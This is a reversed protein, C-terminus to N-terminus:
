KTYDDRVVSGFGCTLVGGFLLLITLVPGFMVGTRLFEVSEDGKQTVIAAMFIGFGSFAAVGGATALMDCLLLKFLRAHKKSKLKGKSSKVVDTDDKATWVIWSAIVALGILITIVKNLNPYGGAVKQLAIFGLGPLVSCAITLMVVRSFTKRDSKPAYVWELVNLPM